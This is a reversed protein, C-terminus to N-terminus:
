IVTMESLSQRILQFFSKTNTQNLKIHNMPQLGSMIQTSTRSIFSSDRAMARVRNMGDPWLWTMINVTVQDGMPLWLQFAEM